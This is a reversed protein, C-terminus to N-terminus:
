RVAKHLEGVPVHRRQSRDRKHAQAVQGTAANDRYPPSKEGMDGCNIWFAPVEESHELLYIGKRQTTIELRAKELLLQPSTNELMEILDAAKWGEASLAQVGLIEENISMRHHPYRSALALLCIQLKETLQLTPTFSALGAFLSDFYSTVSEHILEQFADQQKQIQQEMEQMVNQHNHTQDQLVAVWDSYLRQAFEMNREQVAVTSEVIAQNADLFSQILQQIVAEHSTNRKM